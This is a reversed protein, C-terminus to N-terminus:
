RTHEIDAGLADHDRSHFRSSLHPVDHGLQLIRGGPPATDCEADRVITKAGGIGAVKREWVGQGPRDGFWRALAAAQPQDPDKVAQRLSQGKQQMCFPMVLTNGGFAAARTGSEFDDAMVIGPGSPAVIDLADISVENTADGTGQSNFEIVSVGASGCRAFRLGAFHSERMYAQPKKQVIGSYLARGSMDVVDVDHGEALLRDVLTSGIFGAGGTVLARM